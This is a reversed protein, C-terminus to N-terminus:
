LPSTMRASAAFRQLLPFPISGRPLVSRSRTRSQGWRLQQFDGRPSSHGAACCGLHDCFKWGLSLAVSPARIRELDAVVNTTSVVVEPGRKRGDDSFRQFVLKSPPFAIWAVVFGGPIREVAPLGVVGRTTNVVFDDRRTGSADFRAGKLDQDGLDTWIVVFESGLGVVAPRGRGHNSNVLIEDMAVERADSLGLTVLVWALDCGRQLKVGANGCSKVM